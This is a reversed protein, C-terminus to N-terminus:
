PLLILFSGLTMLSMMKGKGHSQFGAMSFNTRTNWMMAWTMNRYFNAEAPAENVMFDQNQFNLFNYIVCQSSPIYSIEKLKTKNENDPIAEDCGPCDRVQKAAM